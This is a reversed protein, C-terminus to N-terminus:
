AFNNLEFHHSGESLARRVLEEDTEM